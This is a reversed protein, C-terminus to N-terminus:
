FLAFLDGCIWDHEGFIGLGTVLTIWFIEAHASSIVGWESSRYHGAEGIWVVQLEMDLVLWVLLWLSAVSILSADDSM